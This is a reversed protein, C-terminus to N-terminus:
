AKERRETHQETDQDCCKCFAKHHRTGLHGDVRGGLYTQGCFGGCRDCLWLWMPQIVVM